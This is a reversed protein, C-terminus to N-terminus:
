WFNCTVDVVVGLAASSMQPVIAAEVTIQQNKSCRIIRM